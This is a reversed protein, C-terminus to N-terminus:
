LLDSQISTHTSHIHLHISHASFHTACYVIFVFTQHVTADNNLSLIDHDEQEVQRHLLPSQQQIFFFIDGTNFLKSLGDTM